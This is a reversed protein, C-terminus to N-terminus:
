PANRGGDDASRGAVALIAIVAAWILFPAWWGAGSQAWLLRAPSAFGFLLIGAALVLWSGRSDRM